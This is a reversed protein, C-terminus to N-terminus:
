RGQEGSLIGFVLATNAMNNVTPEDMAIAWHVDAFAHLVAEGDKWAPYVTEKFSYGHGRQMPGQVQLGQVPVGAARYRSNHLPCRVAREGLGTIWSLGLPNAGLTNDCTRILWDRYEKKGSLAYLHAATVAYNEYAGTGWNIPAWPNRLFKYGGKASGGKFMRFEALAAERVAVHLAKDGVEGLLMYQYAAATMDYKGWESLAAKPKTTWPVISAFDDHYAAKRTTHYLSADAYARSDINYEHERADKLGPTPNKRAWAYAREARALYDKAEAAKGCSKLIRAAQAFAGACLFSAKADKAWAYDGTDDLEVTQWFGPDRLSETGARIGGDDDQLGKWLRLQWLAEDVIDPVGNGREPVAFQGDRFAAPKLEYCNMLAQAVDLHSRPNYDGADHHGGQAALVLPQGDAGTVLNKDFPAFEPNRVRECTTARVGAAHCAIREWGGAIKPDIRCGCRQSYIGRMQAKLADAYVKDDVRFGISRGVGPVRLFYRGPACLGTFD